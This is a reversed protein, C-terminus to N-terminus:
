AAAGHDAVQELAELSREWNQTIRKQLMGRMLGGMLGKPTGTWHVRVTVGDASPALALESRVGAVVPMETTHLQRTAEQVESVTWHTTPEYSRPPKVTYTAGPQAPGSVDQVSAAFELWEPLRDLDTLVAWVADPSVKMQRSVDVDINEPV